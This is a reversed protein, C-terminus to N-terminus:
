PQGEAKAIAARVATDAADYIEPSNGGFENINDLARM